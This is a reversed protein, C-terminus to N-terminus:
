KPLNHVQREISCNPTRPQTALPFRAMLPAPAVRHQYREDLADITTHSDCRDFIGSTSAHRSFIKKRFDASRCNVSYRSRYAAVEVVQASTEALLAVVFSSYAEFLRPHPWNRCKEGGVVASEMPLRDM